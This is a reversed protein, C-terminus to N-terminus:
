QKQTPELTLVLPFHDSVGDQREARYRRPAGNPQRQPGFQSAVRVSDARIQWTAKDCCAPSWLLMDLFSWNDNRAYYYTGQCDGCGLEHAITWYPRALRELLDTEANEISTTNFDGAAFVNRNDPLAARLDALHRYATERMATPHFPAPFHVAFGTLLTGDPLEFSAELVGRTDGARDGFADFEPEHLVPSGVIPLRSLFGVDIGRNDTGEILVAPQYNLEPLFEGGLRNLVVANEVEQVVIIDPGRGDDVQRITEALMTLKHELNADSWDLYLCEDRWSEVELENCGSIHAASKKAHIPLYAKDDKDPDDVNDFLNQLNFTMITVSIDDRVIDSTDKYSCSILFVPLVVVLLRFHNM